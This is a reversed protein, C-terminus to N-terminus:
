LRPGKSKPMVQFAAGETKSTKGTSQKQPHPHKIRVRIKNKNILSKGPQKNTKENKNPM